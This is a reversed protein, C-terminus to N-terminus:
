VAGARAMESEWWAMRNVERQTKLLLWQTGLGCSHESDPHQLPRPGVTRDELEVTVKLAM